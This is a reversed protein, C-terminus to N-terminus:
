LLLFIFVHKIQFQCFFISLELVGPPRTFHKVIIDSHTSASPTNSFGHSPRYFMFASITHLGIFSSLPFYVSVPTFFLFGLLHSVAARLTNLRRPFHTRSFTRSSRFVTILRSPRRCASSPFTILALLLSPPAPALTMILSSTEAFATFLPLKDERGISCAPCVPGSLASCCREAKFLIFRLFTGQHLLKGQVAQQALGKRRRAAESPQPDQHLPHAMQSRCTLILCSVTLM